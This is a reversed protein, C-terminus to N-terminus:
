RVESILREPFFEACECEPGHWLLIRCVRCEPCYEPPETDRYVEGSTLTRYNRPLVRNLKSSCDLSCTYVQEAIEGYDDELVDVHADFKLGDNIKVISQIRAMM